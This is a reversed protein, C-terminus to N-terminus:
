RCTHIHCTWSALYKGGALSVFLDEIKPLPYPDLKAARNVTTHYDGCLQISGDSKIVSVLPAAWQSHRVPEIIKARELRDLEEEVKQRLAM